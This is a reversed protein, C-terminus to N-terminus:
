LCINFNQNVNNLIGANRKYENLDGNLEQFNQMQNKKYKINVVKSM